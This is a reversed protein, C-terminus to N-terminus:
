RNSGQGVFGIAKEAANVLEPDLNHDQVYAKARKLSEEIEPTTVDPRNANESLEGARLLGRALQFELLQRAREIEGEEILRLASTALGAQVAAQLFLAPAEDPSTEADCASTPSSLYWTAGVLVSLAIILITKNM